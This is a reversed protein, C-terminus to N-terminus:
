WGIIPGCYNEGALYDICGILDTAKLDGTLDGTSLYCGNYGLLKEGLIIYYYYGFLVSGVFVSGSLISLKILSNFLGIILFLYTYGLDKVVRGYNM